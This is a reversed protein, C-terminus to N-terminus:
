GGHCNRAVFAALKETSFTSTTKDDMWSVQVSVRGIMEDACVMMSYTKNGQRMNCIGGYSHNGRAVGAPLDILTSCNELVGFFPQTKLAERLFDMTHEISRHPDEYIGEKEIALNYERGDLEFSSLTAFAASPIFLLASFVLSGIRIAM